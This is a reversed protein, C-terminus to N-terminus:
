STATRDNGSPTDGPGAPPAYVDGYEQWRRYLSWVARLSASSERHIALFDTPALEADADPRVRASLSRWLRHSTEEDPEPPRGVAPRATLMKRLRTYERSGMGFLRRMM